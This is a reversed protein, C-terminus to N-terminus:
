CEHTALGPGQSQLARNLCTSPMYNRCVTEASVIHQNDDRPCVCSLLLEEAIAHCDSCSLYPVPISVLLCIALITRIRYSM